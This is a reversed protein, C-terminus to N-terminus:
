DMHDRIFPTGSAVLNRSQPWHRVERAVTTVFGMSSYLKRRCVTEPLTVAVLCFDPLVVAVHFFAHLAEIAVLSVPPNHALDLCSAEAVSAM